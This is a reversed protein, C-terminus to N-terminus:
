IIIRLKKIYRILIYNKTLEWLQQVHIPAIRTRCFYAFHNLTPLRTMRIFVVPLFAQIRSIEPRIDLLQRAPLTSELQRRPKWLNLCIGFLTMMNRTVEFQVEVLKNRCKMMDVVGLSGDAVVAHLGQELHYMM